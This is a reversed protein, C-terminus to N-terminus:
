NIKYLRAADSIEWSNVDAQSVALENGSADFAKVNSIFRGFDYVKYTGPVMSPFKYQVKESSIQPTILEVNLRDKEATNLDIYFQYNDNQTVQSYSNSFFLIKLILFFIRHM